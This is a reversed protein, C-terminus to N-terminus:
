RFLALINQQQANAQSIAYSGAQAQINLKNYNATEAEYDVDRIVSEAAQLNTTTQMLNDISSTIQNRSSGVDGRWGDLKTIADDLLALSNSAEEQTLGDVALDRLGDLGLGKSNAQIGGDTSITSAATEGMQFTLSETADGDTTTGQQLLQIGNYNTGNAINDIQTLLKNIDKRIAERGEDSTTADAAQVLKGKIEDLIEGQNDLAGDTIDLLAVASNGNATAQTLSTSQTRLKDAIALGSADDSAKNIRYGTTLKELSSGMLRNITNSQQTADM